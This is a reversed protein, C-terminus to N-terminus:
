GLKTRKAALASMTARWSPQNSGASFARKRTMRLRPRLGDLRSVRIPQLSATPRRQAHSDIKSHRRTSPGSRSRYCADHRAAAFQRNPALVPCAGPQGRTDRQHWATDRRTAAMPPRLTAGSLAETHQRRRLASRTAQPAVAGARARRVGYAVARQPDAHGGRFSSNGTRWRTLRRSRGAPFFL